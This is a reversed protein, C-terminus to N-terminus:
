ASEKGETKDTAAPTNTKPSPTKGSNKQLEGRHIKDMASQAIEFRDTRPNYAAMVGESKDTYILAASSEIPENTTTTREIMEEISEGIFSKNVELNTKNFKPLRFM